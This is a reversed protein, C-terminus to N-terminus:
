VTRPRRLKRHRKARKKKLTETATKFAEVLETQRAEKVKIAEPHDWKSKLAEYDPVPLIHRDRKRGVYCLAVAVALGLGVITWGAIEGGGAVVAGGVFMVVVGILFGFGQLRQIQTSSGRRAQQLWGRRERTDKEETQRAVRHIETVLKAAVADPDVLLQIARRGALSPVADMPLAALRDRTSPHTSFSDVVDSATEGNIAPEAVTLEEALWASFGAGRQLQAVRENWGIRATKAALADLKLLASRLPASGCMEAALRDAEFEDQRSYTSVLRAALRTCRDAPNLFWEGLEFTQRARRYSVVRSSLENTLKAARALGGNLWHQLGRRVLKAHAMEHALVAEIEWETLAALLDYGLGLTTADAGRRFGKLQVWAGANMEVRVRRPAPVQLRRSLNHLFAFLDPADAAELPVQFERRKRHWFSRVFLSLLASHRQIFPAILGTLGFRAGIAALLVEGALLVLLLLISTVVFLYFLAITLAASLILGSKAPRSLPKEGTAVAPTTM